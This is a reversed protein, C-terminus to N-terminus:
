PTTFLVGLDTLRQTFDRMDIDVLEDSEVVLRNGRHRVDDYTDKAAKLSRGTHTRLLKIFAVANESPVGTVSVSQEQADTREYMEDFTDPGYVRQSGPPGKVVWDRPAVNVWRREPETWVILTGEDGVDVNHSGVFREIMGRDESGLYQVARVREPRRSYLDGVVPLAVLADYPLDPEPTEDPM